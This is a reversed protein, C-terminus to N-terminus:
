GFSTGLNWEYLELTMWTIRDPVVYDWFSNHFGSKFRPEMPHWLSFTTFMVVQIHVWAGRYWMCTNQWQVMLASASHGWLATWTLIETSLVCSSTCMHWVLFLSRCSHCDKTTRFPVLIKRFPVLIEKHFNMHPIKFRPTALEKQFWTIWIELLCIYKWSIYELRHYTFTNISFIYEKFDFVYKQPVTINTWSPNKYKITVLCLNVTHNLNMPLKISMLKARIRYETNQVTHQSNQTSTFLGVVGGGGEWAGGGGTYISNAEYRRGMCGMKVSASTETGLSRIWFLKSILLSMYLACSLGGTCLCEVLVSAISSNNMTRMQMCLSSDVPSLPDCLSAM